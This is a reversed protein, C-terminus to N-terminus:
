ELNDPYHKGADEFLLWHKYGDSYNYHVKPLSQSEVTRYFETEVPLNHFAKYIRSTNDNFTIREVVSLPWEHLSERSIINTGHIVALEDDDHLWIDFNNHKKV